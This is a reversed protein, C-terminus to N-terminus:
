DGLKERSFQISALTKEVKRGERLLDISKYKMSPTDNEASQRGNSPADITSKGKM